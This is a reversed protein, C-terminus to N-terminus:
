PPLDTKILDLRGGGVADIRGRYDNLFLEMQNEAQDLTQAELVVDVKITHVKDRNEGDVPPTAANKIYVDPYDEQMQRYVPFFDKWVMTVNYTRAMFISTSRSRIMDAVYSDFMSKMEAPVGPLTCISKGAEDVRMGVAFGVPNQIAQCGELIRAMREGRRLSPKDIIGRRLYVEKIKEAGVTDIITAKGLAKGISEVTLDDESPGLGGTFLIFHADRKLAELLTEGIIEPEDGIVTIRRLKAGIEAVRQALWNSNTDLIRGYLLEDGTAIIEVNVSGHPKMYGL